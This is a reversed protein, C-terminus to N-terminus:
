SPHNLMRSLVEMVMVFLFSSLPDDQRLGKRGYFFINLSGNIMLSVMPSTVCAGIWSVFSLPTGIAMLLGFFTGIVLIMPKKFILRCLEGLSELTTIIVGM